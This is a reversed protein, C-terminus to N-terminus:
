APPMVLGYAELMGDVVEPLSMKVVQAQAVEACCNLYGSAQQLGPRLGRSEAYILLRDLAGMWEALDADANEIGLM